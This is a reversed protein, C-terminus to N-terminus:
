IVTKNVIYYFMNVCLVPSNSNIFFPLLHVSYIGDLTKEANPLWSFKQNHLMNWEKRQEETAGKMM